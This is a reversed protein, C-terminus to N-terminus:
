MTAMYAVVNVDSYTYQRNMRAKYLSFFCNSLLQSPLPSHNREAVKNQIFSISFIQLPVQIIQALM